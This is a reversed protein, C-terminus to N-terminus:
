SGIKLLWGDAETEGKANVGGWMIVGKGDLCTDAGFFGRPGPHVKGTTQTLETPAIELEHWSFEGSEVGPIADRIVDKVRSGTFGGSPLQLSWMDSYFPHDETFTEDSSIDVDKRSGFLCLLYHRGYGTTVHSMAGGVRPRPGPALPNTPFDITSWEPAETQDESTGPKIYHISGHVDTDGSISYLTSDVYQAALSVAPATPLENWLRTTFDFVWTDKTPEGDELGGHLVLLDRAQDYFIQHKSRSEPSKGVAEMKEWKLTNADWLWLCSGENPAQGDSEQGGHVILTDGRACAAHNVRPAPCADEEGVAPYCAYEGNGQQEGPLSVAHVENSCLQGDEKNGGFIYARNNIVTVTHHSRALALSDDEVPTTAIQTLVVTLPQSPRAVIAAAGAEVGTSIIQEAVIAGAAVEAM